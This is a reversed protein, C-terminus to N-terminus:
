PALPISLVSVSIPPVTTATMPESATTERVALEPPKGVLNAASLGSGELRLIKAPEAAHAGVLELDLTQASETANVVAVYLTRRDSSLAASVDLPYTPSGSNQRPQDGGAPYKPEPQPANGDVAVPVTGPFTNGYMKFILGLGNLTSATQNFDLTSTGMTHAAFTISDTHRLMENFVM